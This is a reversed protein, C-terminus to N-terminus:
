QHNSTVTKLFKKLESAIRKDKLGIEINAKLWRFPDGTTIWHGNKIPEAIVVDEKALLNNADALWFEDGRGLKQKELVTFIKPSIVFRGFQAFLSPAQDAPLKELVEAARNPYHVDKIYKISAYRNIENQPVKQTGLVVAPQYKEFIKILHHLYNGPQDEIILDDGFMFVFSENNIFNKAALVPSANGYPLRRPQPIFRLTKLNKRIFKLSKLCEEKGSEQLYEELEQDPAFHNRISKEGHRHVIAIKKINAGILEEVLYQLNPKDLIPVLHKAYAKVAPLFRTSWGASAIVGKKVKPM